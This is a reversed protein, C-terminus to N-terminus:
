GRRQWTGDGAVSSRRHDGGDEVTYHPTGVEDPSPLVQRTPGDPATALKTTATGRTVRRTVPRQTRAKPIIQRRTHPPAPRAGAAPKILLRDATEAHSKVTKGGRNGLMLGAGGSGVLQSRLISDSAQLRAPSRARHRCAGRHARARPRSRAPPRQSRRPPPPRSRARSGPAAESDGLLVCRAAPHPRDLAAAAVAGPEGAEEGFAALRHELDAACRAASRRSLPLSSARSAALVARAASAASM